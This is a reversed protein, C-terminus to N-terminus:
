DVSSVNDYFTIRKEEIANLLEVNEFSAVIDYKRIFLKEKEIAKQIDYTEFSDIQVIRGDIKNKAIVLYTKMIDKTINM